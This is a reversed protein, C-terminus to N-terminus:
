VLGDRVRWLAEKDLKEGTFIIRRSTKDERTELYRTVNMWRITGERDAKDDLREGTQRVVLYVDVPQNVWYDLHRENKVDFVERGDTKRRRLYFNGSRLQVYIRRGSPRGNEDRFEVEGDIGVDFMTVPRFIQGAEGCVALMHGVLIQELAQNDLRRTATEEMKLIERAVPDSELREEIFDRFPVKEDCEQCTIFAKGKEQRRRVAGLNTVPMGCEPCVYRRDRRIQTAYKALHRHVYEILIVKLEDPAAMDFFLSITAEGEGQRNDIKLGLLHGRSSQFEAANRWLERREFESSYWLRVVLTTWVSQWEGHFTYSVFVDPQWPINIERRYQSPFVLQQGAGTDEAICLSRELFTQVLARLLLEEDPRPLRRVGTFDFGPDHIKSEAVCGIEDVHARAARIIAGAYGNLLEPQLLVLDGFKLPLALGHNALLTVVTRVDAETFGEGPLARRLHKELESFRLLRIDAEDRMALVANKLEALLKPTATWPLQEWPISDAILQKLRSPQGGNIGDSCNEGTKASTALWGAFGYEACFRDIKANSVKMGGVDIQSFILLRATEPVDGPPSYAKGPPAQADEDKRTSYPAPRRNWGVDSMRPSAPEPVDGPPSYAKGPPAQADEDKRTSYPAPRRNWGVDSMRPSAPEPVDGPPSYAKGPPAQADEDKRTSYPAPRRNWGVDSMRPSAPEGYPPIPAREPSQREDGVNIARRIGRPGRASELAKLWDGAEAFPDDKQPNILLLALATQELFLRHILRYDEQGALDWLLAERDLTDDEGPAGSELTDKGPAGSELAADKGDRVSPGPMGRWSSSSSSSSPPPLELRWVNMGHIRDRIVYADDMLRHALSTKGVAGEGILVVKATVSRRVEDYHAVNGGEEDNKRGDASRAVQQEWVKQRSAALLEAFAVGDKSRFDIYKYRRLVNPLECDALLLPIFRREKNSPDRFLVTNHELAIWGSSLAAPSLCLVQVRSQDLGREIAHYINDGPKIVWEDFWVRFGADWLREALRRVEPRDAANYSLFIDYTFDSM